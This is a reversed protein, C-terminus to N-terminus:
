FVGRWKQCAAELQKELELTGAPVHKAMHCSTGKDYKRRDRRGDSISSRKM